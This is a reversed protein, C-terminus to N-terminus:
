FIFYGAKKCVCHRCLSQKDNLYKIRDRCYYDGEKFYVQDRGADSGVPHLPKEAILSFYLCLHKTFERNEDDYPDNESFYHDVDDKISSIRRDSIELDDDIELSFIEDYAQSNYAALRKAMSDPYREDNAKSKLYGIPYDKLNERIEDLLVSARVFDSGITYEYGHTYKFLRLNM